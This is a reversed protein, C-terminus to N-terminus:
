SWRRHYLIIFTYISDRLRINRLVKTDCPESLISRKEQVQLHWHYFPVTIRTSPLRKPKLAGAKRRRRQRGRKRGQPIGLGPLLPMFSCDSETLLQHSHGKRDQAVRDVHSPLSWKQAEWDSTMITLVVREEVGNTGESGGHLPLTALAADACIIWVGASATINLWVETKGEKEEKLGVGWSDM